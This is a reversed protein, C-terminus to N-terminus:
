SLYATFDKMVRVPISPYSSRLDALTNAVCVDGALGCIDVSDIELNEIIGKMSKAGEESQFISYEEKTLDTGKHLITLDTPIELLSEMLPVWIAAGKSAVVCHLPWEGGNEKFSCHLPPHADCTVVIMAYNRGKYRVYEALADMKKEAGPVPLSGCIFDIQPDVILLLKNSM